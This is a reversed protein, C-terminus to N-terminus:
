TGEPIRTQDLYDAFTTFTFESLLARLKSEVTGLNVYSKFRRLLPMPLRPHDPDIERPHLYIIVPRGNNLVARVARRIVAYPFLRLYGGGFLCARLPGFRVVSIPFEVIHQSQVPIAHPALVDTRFGGHGRHAPFISSDYRYGAEVLNEFFWPNDGTVSFGTARFGRVPLGSVDEILRKSRSADSLFAEPSMRFVLEHAYGHSAIEHHAQATERVLQPFREAVWGLFFCTARVDYESLIELLRQLNREVRSELTVWTDIPPTAPIDLIHFWDEVDISFICRSEDYHM